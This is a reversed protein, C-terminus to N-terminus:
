QRETKAFHGLRQYPRLFATCLPGFKRGVGGNPEVLFAIITKYQKKVICFYQKIFLKTHQM